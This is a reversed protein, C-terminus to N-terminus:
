CPNPLSDLFGRVARDFLEPQEAYPWHGSDPVVELQCNPLHDRFFEHYRVPTLQDEQGCIALTPVTINGL